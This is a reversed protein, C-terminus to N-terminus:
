EPPWPAVIPKEEGPSLGGLHALVEAYQPQESPRYTLHIDNLMRTGDTARLRLVITGDAQMIASGISAATPSQSVSAAKAPSNKTEGHGSSKACGAAALLAFVLARIM